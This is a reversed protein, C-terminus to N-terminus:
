VKFSNLLGTMTESSADITIIESDSFEPLSVTFEQLSTTQLKKATIKTKGSPDQISLITSVPLNTSEDVDSEKSDSRKACTFTNTTSPKTMPFTASPKTTSTKVLQKPQMIILNPTQVKQVPVTKLNSSSQQYIIAQPSISSSSSVFKGTQGLSKHSIPVVVVQQQGSTKSLLKAQSIGFGAQTITSSSGLQSVPSKIQKVNKQQGPVGILNFVTSTQPRVTRVTPSRASSVQVTQRVGINPRFSYASIPKTSATSISASTPNSSVFIVRTPNVSSSTYASSLPNIPYTSPSSVYPRQLSSTIIKQNASISQAVLKGGSQPSVSQLQGIQTARIPVITPQGQVSIQSLNDIKRRKSSSPSENFSNDLFRATSGTSSPASMSLNKTAQINAMTNAMPTFATQPVLRPLLPALRRGEVSWELSTNSGSIHHAITNLREDNVARRVEARHREVSISFFSFTGIFYVHYYLIYRLYNALEQLLKRKEKNLDGQARFATIVSAYAELELHNFNNFM